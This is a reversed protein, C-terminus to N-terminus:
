DEPRTTKIRELKYNRYSFVAGFVFTLLTFLSGLMIFIVIGNACHPEGKPLNRTMGYISISMAWISTAINFASLALVTLITKAASYKILKINVLIFLAAFPLTCLIFPIILSLLITM